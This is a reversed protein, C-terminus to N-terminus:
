ESYEIDYTRVIPLEALDQDLNPGWSQYGGEYTEEYIYDTYDFVYYKNRSLVDKQLDFQNALFVSSFIHHFIETTYQYATPDTMCESYKLTSETLSDFANLVEVGEGKNCWTEGIQGDHDSRANAESTLHGAYHYGSNGFADTKQPLPDNIKLFTVTKILPYEGTADYKLGVQGTVKRDTSSFDVIKGDYEKASDSTDNDTNTNAIPQQNTNAKQNTDQTTNTKEQAQNTNTDKSCSAGTLVLALAMAVLIILSSKKPM